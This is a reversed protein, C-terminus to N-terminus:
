RDTDVDRGGVGGTRIHNTRQYYFTVIMFFANSMLLFAVTRDTSDSLALRGAIYLTSGVVMVTVVAQTLEWVLNIRRQSSTRLVTEEHKGKAKLAAETEVAVEAARADTEPMTIAPTAATPPEVVVHGEPVEMTSVVQVEDADIHVPTKGHQSAGGVPKSTATM